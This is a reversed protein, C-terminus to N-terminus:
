WLALSRQASNEWSRTGAVWTRTPSKESCMLCRGFFFWSYRPNLPLVAGSLVVAGFMHVADMIKGPPCLCPFGAKTLFWSLSYPSCGALRSIHLWGGEKCSAPLLGGNEKVHKNWEIVLVKDGMVYWQSLGTRSLWYPWIHPKELIVIVNFYWYLQSISVLSSIYHFTLTSICVLPGLHTLLWFVFSM